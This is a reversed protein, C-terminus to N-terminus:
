YLPPEDGPVKWRGLPELVQQAGCAMLNLESGTQLLLFGQDIARRIDDGSTVFRGAAKGNERAARAVLTLAEQVEPHDMDGRHGLSFALDSPGVSIVDIGPTAACLIQHFLAVAEPQGHPGVSEAVAPSKGRVHFNARGLSEDDDPHDLVGPERPVACLGLSRKPIPGQLTKPLLSNQTARGGRVSGSAVPKAAQDFGEERRPAAGGGPKSPRRSESLMPGHRGLQVAGTTEREM